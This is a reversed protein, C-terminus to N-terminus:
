TSPSSTSGPACRVEVDPLDVEIRADVRDALPALEELAGDIATRLRTTEQGAGADAARSFGLLGEILLSSRQM